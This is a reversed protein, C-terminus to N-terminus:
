AMCWWCCCWRLALFPDLSYSCCSCACLTLREGRTEILNKEDGEELAMRSKGCKRSAIVSSTVAVAQILKMNNLVPPFDYIYLHLSADLLPNLHYKFCERLSSEWEAVLGLQTGHTCENRWHKWFMAREWWRRINLWKKWGSFMM